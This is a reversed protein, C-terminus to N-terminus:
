HLRHRPWSQVPASGVASGRGESWGRCRPGPGHGHGVWDPHPVAQVCRLHRAAAATAAATAAAAALPLGLCNAVGWGRFVDVKVPRLALGVLQLVQELHHHLGQPFVLKGPWEM